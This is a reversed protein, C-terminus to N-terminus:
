CALSVARPVCESSTRQNVGMRGSNLLWGCIHWHGVRVWGRRAGWMLLVIWLRCTLDCSDPQSYTSQVLVSCELKKGTVLTSPTPTTGRSTCKNFSVFTRREILSVLSRAAAARKSYVFPLSSLFM